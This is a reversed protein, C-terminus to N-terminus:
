EHQNGKKWPTVIKYLVDVLKVLGISLISIVLIAAFVQDYDYSKMMRTIYVGLGKFGGVWESIVADIIAYNTAIKLNSFFSDISNPFKIYWYVQWKKAQLTKMLMIQEPEVNQFSHYTSVAIQFLVAVTVLVIKPLIGYGFWLILLPAIVITPITQSITLLPNLIKHFAPILDMIIALIIGILIGILLGIIAEELTILTNDLIINLHKILASLIMVPSPLLYSSVVKFQVLFQWIVAITGITLLSIFHDKNNKM